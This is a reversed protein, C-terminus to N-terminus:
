GTLRGNPPPCFRWVVALNSELAPIPPTRFAWIACQNGVQVHGEDLSSSDRIIHPHEPYYGSPVPINLGPVPNRAPQAQIVYQVPHLIQGPAPNSAPLAAVIQQAPPVQLCPAPNCAPQAQYSQQAPSVNLGPM